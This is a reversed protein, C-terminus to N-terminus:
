ELGSSKTTPLQYVEIVYILNMGDDITYRDIEIDEDKYKSLEDGYLRQMKFREELNSNEKYELRKIETREGTCSYTHHETDKYILKKWM